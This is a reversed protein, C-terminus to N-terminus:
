QIMYHIQERHPQNSKLASDPKRKVSIAPEWIRNYNHKWFYLLLELQIVSTKIYKCSRIKWWFIGSMWTHTQCIEQSGTQMNLLWLYCRAGLTSFEPTFMQLEAARTCCTSIFQVRLYKNCHQHRGGTHVEQKARREGDISVVHCLSVNKLDLSGWCLSTCSLKWSM